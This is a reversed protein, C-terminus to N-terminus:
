VFHQTFSALVVERVADVGIMCCEVRVSAEFKFLFKAAAISTANPTRVCKLKPDIDPSEVDNQEVAVRSRRHTCELSGTSGPTTLVGAENNEDPCVIWQVLIRDSLGLFQKLGTSFLSSDVRSIIRNARIVNDTRCTVMEQRWIVLAIEAGIQRTDDRVRFGIVAKATYLTAIPNL